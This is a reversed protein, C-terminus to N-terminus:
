SLTGRSYSGQMSGCCFLDLQDRRWPEPRLTKPILDGYGPPGLELAFASFDARGAFSLKGWTVQFRYEFTQQHSSPARYNGM